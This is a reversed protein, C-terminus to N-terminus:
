KKTKGWIDLYWSVQTGVAYQKSIQTGTFKQFTGGGAVDVTPLEGARAESIQSNAVAMRAALGKLDINSAIAQNVLSDLYPDGFKSWWQPSIAETASVSAPPRSWTSKTPAQPHQYEPVHTSACGVLGACVSLFVAAQKM